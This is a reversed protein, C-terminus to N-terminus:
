KREGAAILSQGVLPPIVKELGIFFPVMKNFIIIQKKSLSRRRLLSGNVFWGLTGFFNFFKLYRVNFGNL